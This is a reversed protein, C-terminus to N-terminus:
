RPLGVRRALDDFRPDDALADFRPDVQLFVLWQDRLEWAKELWHFAGDVDGAAALDFVLEM